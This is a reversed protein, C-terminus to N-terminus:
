EYAFYQHFFIYEDINGKYGFTTLLKKTIDQDNEYVKIKGLLLNYGKNEPKINIELPKNESIFTLIQTSDSFKLNDNLDGISLELKYNKLYFPAFSIEIPYNDSLRVSDKAITLFYASVNNLLRGTDSKYILFGIMDFSGQDNPYYVDKVLAM